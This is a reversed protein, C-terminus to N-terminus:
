SNYILFSITTFILKTIGYFRKYESLSLELLDKCNSILEQVGCGTVQTKDLFLHQLKGCKKSIEIVDIDCIDTNKLDLHLLSAFAEERIIQHILMYDCSCLSLCELSKYINVKIVIFGTMSSATSGLVLEHAEFKWIVVSTQIIFDESRDIM